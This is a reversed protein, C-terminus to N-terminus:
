VHRVREAATLPRHNTLIEDFGARLAAITDDDTEPLYALLRAGRRHYSEVIAPTFLDHGLFLRPLTYTRGAQIAGLKPVKLLVSLGARWCAHKDALTPMRPFLQKALRRARSTWLLLRAQSNLWSDANKRHAWRKLIHLTQLDTEPKIDFIWSYGAYRQMFEDFTLIQQQDRTKIRRIDVLRMEHVARDVGCSRELSVDHMLVIHGDATARLDLELHIFGAEIALDFSRLTNEVCEQHSGRHSVWIVDHM